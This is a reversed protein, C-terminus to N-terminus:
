LLEASLDSIIFLSKIGGPFDLPATAIEGDIDMELTTQVGIRMKEALRYLLTYKKNDWGNMDVEMDFIKRQNFSRWDTSIFPLIQILSQDIQKGELLDLFNM